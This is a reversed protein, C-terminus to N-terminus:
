LTPECGHSIGHPDGLMSPRSFHWKKLTTIRWTALLHDELAMQIYIYVIHKIFFSELIDRFM